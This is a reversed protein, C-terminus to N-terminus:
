PEATEAAIEAFLDPTGFGGAKSVLTLGDGASGARSVPIGPRFEGLVDLAAVGLADLIGEVTDGGTAVLAGLRGPGGLRDISTRIGAAFAEVVAAPEGRPVAPVRAVVARATGAARVVAGPDLVGAPADVVPVGPRAEILRQTQEQAAGARSGIAYLVVRGEGGALRVGAGPRGLRGALSTALGDSGVALVERAHESVLVALRSLHADTEADAITIGSIGDGALTEDSQLGRVAGFRGFLASLPEVPSPTRLDRAYESERLAVGHVHVEGDRVVRGAAPFAPCVLASRREFVQMAAVVEDAVPGRLTSDIKKFVLRPSWTRLRRGAAEVASRAADPALHRSSTSVALVTGPSRPDEARPPGSRSPQFPGSAGPPAVPLGGVRRHVRVILGGRAFPAAADLAGTLDDAM